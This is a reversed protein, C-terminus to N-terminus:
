LQKSGSPRGTEAIHERPARYCRRSSARRSDSSDVKLSRRKIQTGEIGSFRCHQFRKRSKAGFRRGPLCSQTARSDRVRSAAYKEALQKFRRNLEPCVSCRQWNIFSAAPHHIQTVRDRAVSPARLLSAKRARGSISSRPGIGCQNSGSRDAAAHAHFSCTAGSASRQSLSVAATHM